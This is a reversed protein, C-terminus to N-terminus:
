NRLRKELDAIEDDLELRDRPAMSKLGNLVPLMLYVLSGMGYVIEIVPIIMSKLQWRPVHVLYKFLVALIVWLSMLICHGIMFMYVMARQVTGVIVVEAETMLPADRLNEKRRKLKVLRGQMSVRSRKAWWGALKPTLLNAAIGLPVAMMIGFIFGLPIYNWWHV